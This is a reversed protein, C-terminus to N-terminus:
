YFYIGRTLTKMNIQIENNFQYRSVEVGCVNYLIVLNNNNYHYTSIKLNNVLAGFYINFNKNEDFIEQTGVTCTDTVNIFISDSKLTCNNKDSVSVFYYIPSDITVTPNAITSSTLLTDPFWNYIYPSTGGSVLPNNGLIITKGKCITTDNFISIKLPTPEQITTTITIECQKTDIATVSYQGSKLNIAKQTTQIPITNWSYLYPPTGSYVFANASGTSDGFCKVNTPYVTIGFVSCLDYKWFDKKVGENYNAGLGIYGINNIAFGTANHREGGSFDGLLTWTNNISNYIWLDSKYPNPPNGDYGLGFYGKNNLSFATVNYRNVGPFKTKQTWLNNVPDYEWFEQYPYSFIYGKENITFGYSATFDKPFNTETTWKDFVPDYEYIDKYSIAGDTGFGIYGKSNTAFAISNMRGGGIFPAKKTWLNLKPDFEWFESFDNVGTTGFGIYAKGNIV